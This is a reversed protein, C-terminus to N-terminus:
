EIVAQMEDEHLVIDKEFKDVQVTYIYLVEGKPTTIWYRNTVKAVKGAYTGLNSDRPSPHQSKVPAITVRQGIEYMPAM